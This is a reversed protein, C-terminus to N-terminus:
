RWNSKNHSLMYNAFSLRETHIPYKLLIVHLERHNDKKWHCCVFILRHVGIAIWINSPNTQVTQLISHSQLFTVLLINSSFSWVADVVFVVVVRFASFHIQLLFFGCVHCRGCCFGYVSAFFFVLLSGISFINYKNNNYQTHTHTAM